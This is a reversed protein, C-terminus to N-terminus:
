DFLGMQFLFLVIASIVSVFFIGLVFIALVPKYKM